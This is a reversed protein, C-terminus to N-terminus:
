EIERLNDKMWQPLDAEKIDKSDFFRRIRSPLKRGPFLFDLPNELAIRKLKDPELRAFARVYDEEKWTHRTMM